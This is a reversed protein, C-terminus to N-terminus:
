KELCTLRIANCQSERGPIVPESRSREVKRDGPMLELQDSALWKPFSAMIFLEIFIRKSIAATPVNTNAPQAPKM